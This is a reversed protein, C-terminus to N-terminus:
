IFLNLYKSQAAIIHLFEMFYPWQGNKARLLKQFLLEEIIMFNPLMSCMNFTTNIPLKDLGIYKNKIQHKCVTNKGWM